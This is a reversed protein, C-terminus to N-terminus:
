YDLLNMDNFIKKIILYKKYDRYERKRESSNTIAKNLTKIMKGYEDTRDYVQLLLDYTKPSRSVHEINELLLIEAHEIDGELILRAALAENTKISEISNIILEM